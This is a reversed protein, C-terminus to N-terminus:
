RKFRELASALSPHKVRVGSVAINLYENFAPIALLHATIFYVGVGVLGQASLRVLLSVVDLGDVGWLRMLWGAVWVVASMVACCGAIPFLLCVQRRLPFDFLKKNPWSNVAIELIKCFVSGVVAFALVSHRLAIVLVVFSIGTKIVQMPIFYEARGTAALGQMNVDAVPTLACQFCVIQMFVVAAGWQHGFLLYIIDSACLALGCMLPFVVFSSCQLMKSMGERLREKSDQMRALAPFSVGVITGGISRMLLTPLSKGKNVFALSAPSYWKGILLGLIDLFTVSILNMVTMKWGFALLERIASFSFVWRPRWAIIFWRAIVGAAGAIVGSWVIAWPGYGLLALVIGSVASVCTTVATIRFNLDFALRRQLEANQVSNIAGFVLNIASVRLLDRLIPLHYFGAVAPAALFLAVYVVLSLAISSYFMSNFHLETPNKKQVLASALGCDVLANCVTFFITLLAVTGYDAPTLLRSLVMTVVFAAVQGFIKELMVWAAGKVVKQRFEGM